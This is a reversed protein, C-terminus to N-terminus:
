RRPLQLVRTGALRDHLFQHDRDFVWWVYGVGFCLLAPWSLVYRLAARALTVPGGNSADVLKIRWTQMALTQGGRTWYWIFYAGFVVFIHLWELWGPVSIHWVVGLILYPVMFTLALVGLLLLAEYLMSALRRILGAPPLSTADTM